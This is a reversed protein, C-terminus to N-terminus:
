RDAHGPHEARGRRSWGSIKPSTSGRSAGSSSARGRFYTGSEPGELSVYKIMKTPDTPHPEVFYKAGNGGYDGTSAYFAYGNGLDTAIWSFSLRRRCPQVPSLARCHRQFTGRGRIRGASEGLVGLDSCCNSSPLLGSQRVGKVGAAEPNLDLQQGLVGYTRGSM